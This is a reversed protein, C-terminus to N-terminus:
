PRRRPTTPTSLYTKVVRKVEEVTVVEVARVYRDPFDAGVGLAEFFVDYWAGTRRDYPSSASCTPRPV